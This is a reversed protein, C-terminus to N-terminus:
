LTLGHLPKLLIIVYIPNIYHWRTHLYGTIKEPNPDTREEEEVEKEGKDDSGVQTGRTFLSIIM